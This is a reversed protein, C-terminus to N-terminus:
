NFLQLWWMGVYSGAWTAVFDLFEPTGRGMWSDWVVEKAIGVGTAVRQGIRPTTAIGILLSIFVGCGFHLRKDRAFLPIGEM